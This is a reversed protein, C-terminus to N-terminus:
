LNDLTGDSWGGGLAKYLKILQERQATQTALVDLAANGSAIRARYVPAFDSLGAATRAQAASQAKQATAMAATRADLQDSQAALQELAGGVESFATLVTKRYGLYAEDAQARAVGVLARGRGFDILPFAASGSAITEISNASLLSALSTSLLEAVGTLSFRPYLDATAVGIQATAAALTREAARVDPRRRLLESPLGPAVKPVALRACPMVTTLETPLESVPVALLLAIQRRLMEQQARNAAISARIATSEQQEPYSAAAASSVGSATSADAIRLLGDHAARQDDLITAECQAARLKLYDDALEATVAVETDRAQWESAEAQAGAAERRRKAGGFLDIEWSADFGASFTSISEGPLAVGGSSGRNQGGGFLSGLGALGANKSFRTNNAGISTGLTPKGAALAAARELRAARLRAAASALDLNQSLARDVLQDLVPDKFQRWWDSLDPEAAAPAAVPGDYRAPLTLAPPAYDPGVTCGSLTPIIAMSAALAALNIKM